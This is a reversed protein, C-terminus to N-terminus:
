KKEERKDEPSGHQAMKSMSRMMFYMGLPCALLALAPLFAGAAGLVASGGGLLFVLALLPAGWCLGKGLYAKWGRRKPAADAPAEASSVETPAQLARAAAAQVRAERVNRVFEEAHGDSCFVEGFREITLGYANTDAGCFACYREALKEFRTGKGDEPLAVDPATEKQQQETM